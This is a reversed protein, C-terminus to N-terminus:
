MASTKPPFHDKLLSLASTPLNFILCPTRRNGDTSTMGMVGLCEEAIYLKNREELGEVPTRHYYKGRLPYSQNLQNGQAETRRSANEAELFVRM